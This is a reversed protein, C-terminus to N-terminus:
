KLFAELIDLRRVARTRKQGTAEKLVAKLETAEKELDVDALLKQIAEAGMEATFRDGYEEKKERYEAESLLQKKELPTDGADLVVYSAFYIVEELARPSMDLVLGMRSPIGKFYWIHSVPAALEIHGMRERRVKSSTVEVGCRDCVRGKF